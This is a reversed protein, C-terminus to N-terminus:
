NELWAQVRDQNERVWRKAAQYYDVQEDRAWLMVQEMDEPSWYFNQLFSFVEPMDDELGQRAITSIHEEQGYVGDPDDLYRLDWKAFKWHPTWGTVVIWREEEIAKELATTMTPGSGSILEFGDLGYANMAESTRAMIGAGPDIGLIRNEFRDRHGSLEEISEVEAYKPVVLGIRTGELNIGLEQIEGQHEQLFDAQLSPLWAAVSADQEGAALSQWMAHLSVTLLECDRGMEEQIVAKVVHASAQESVWDVYVLRVPERDQVQEQEQEDQSCGAVFLLICMIFVACCTFCHSCRYIEPLTM